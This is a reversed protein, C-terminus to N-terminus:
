SEKGFEWVVGAGFILLNSSYKGNGITTGELFEGTLADISIQKLKSDTVDTDMPFSQSVGFDISWDGNPKYTGGIGYGIKNGDVLSVSQTADPIGSTEYFVGTRAIWKDGLAQQGGLRVSWADQYEAPLEVDDTITVDEMRAAEQSHDENLDVVLNVDTITIKDISSWNQWVGALEIESKDTPRVAFGGKLILPMTIDMRVMEDKTTESLIVYDGVLKDTHLSHNSFDAEMTGETQFAVPPQVMFGLAWNHSPPEIMVGANWSIGSADKAAFRFGVDNTPDENPTPSDINTVIEGDIVESRIQNKHFPVSVKLEQEAILLSWAVGVGVSIWDNVQHAVSPGLATQIVLVDILSYRQSGDKDYSLDPAYPPYFGFAFTTKELGFRSSIGFHPIAYPPAKNEIEDYEINSPVGTEPDLPGNGEFPSRQFTVFQQVGAVDVMVQSRKLRTLAAPNYFMATLDDNGAIFAGGRSFSRVGIDSQYYTSANANGALLAAAGVLTLLSGFYPKMM